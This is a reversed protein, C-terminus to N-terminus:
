DITAAAKNKRIITCSVLVVVLGCVACLWFMTGIAAGLREIMHEVCLAFEGQLEQPLSLSIDSVVRSGAAYSGSQSLATIEAPTLAAQLRDSLQSVPTWGNLMMGFVAGAIATAITSIQGLFALGQAVDNFELQSQAYNNVAVGKCSEAVGVLGVMAVVFVLPTSPKAYVALLASPVLVFLGQTALLVWHRGQGRSLWLALVSPLLITVLTKPLPVLGSVAATSGMVSQSLIPLYSSQLTTFIGTGMFGIICIGAFGPSRLLRFPIIPNQQRLEYFFLLCAMAAFGALSALILPHAWGYQQSFNLPLLLLLLTVALLLLGGLDAKKPATEIKPFLLAIPLAGLLCLIGPYVISWPMQGVDAMYGAITGGAVGGLAIAATFVAYGKASNKPTYVFSAIPYVSGTILGTSFSLLFRAAVFVAFTVGTALATLVSAAAVATAGIVAAKKIGLSSFLCAGLASAVAMGLTSLVTLIGFHGTAGFQGLIASTNIGIGVGSLAVCAIMVTAGLMIFFHKAGSLEVPAKNISHNM